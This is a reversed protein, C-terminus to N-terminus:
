CSVHIFATLILGTMRLFSWNESPFSTEEKVDEIKIQRYNTADIWLEKRM